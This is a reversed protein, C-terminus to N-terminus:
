DDPGLVHIMKINNHSLVEKIRLGNIEGRITNQAPSEGTLRFKAKKVLPVITDNKMEWDALKIAINVKPYEMTM